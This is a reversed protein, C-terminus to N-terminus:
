GSTTERVLDALETVIADPVDERALMTAYSSTRRTSTATSSVPAKLEPLL